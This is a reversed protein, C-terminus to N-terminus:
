MAAEKRESLTGATRKNSQNNRAAMGTNIDYLIVMLKLQYTLRTVICCTLRKILRSLKQVESIPLRPSQYSQGLAPLECATAKGRAIFSEGSKLKLPKFVERKVM